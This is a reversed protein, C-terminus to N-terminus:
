YASGFMDEQREVLDGEDKALVRRKSEKQMAKRERKNVLHPTVPTIPTYPMYPSYPTMPVGTRPTLGATLPGRPGGKQRTEIFTTKVPTPAVDPMSAQNRLPLTSTSSAASRGANLNDPHSPARQPAPRPLPQPKDLNEYREDDSDETIMTHQTTQSAYSKGTHPTPPQGSAQQDGFNRPTLPTREDDDVDDKPANIRLNRLAKRTKSSGGSVISEARSERPSRPSAPLGQPVPPRSYNGSTTRGPSRPSRPSVPATMPSEPPYIARVPSRPGDGLHGPSYPSIPSALDRPIEQHRGTAVRLVRKDKPRFNPDQSYQDDVADIATVDTTSGKQADHAMVAQYLMEMEQQARDRNNQLVRADFSAHNPDFGPSGPASGARSNTTSMSNKRGRGFTNKMWSKTTSAPSIPSPDYQARPSKIMEIEPALGTGYQAQRRMRRGFTLLCIGIVVVTLFYAGVIGCIQAPLLAIDTTRHLDLPPLTKGHSPDNGTDRSILPITPLNSSASACQFLLALAFLTFASLDLSLPRTSVM